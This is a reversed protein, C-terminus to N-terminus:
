GRAGEAGDPVMRGLDHLVPEVVRENRAYIGDGNGLEGIHGDRHKLVLSGFDFVAGGEVEVGGTDVEDEPCIM